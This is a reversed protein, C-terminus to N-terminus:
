SYSHRKAASPLLKQLWGARVPAALQPARGLVSDALGLV